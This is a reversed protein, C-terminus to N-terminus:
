AIVWFATNFVKFIRAVLILSHYCRELVCFWGLCLFLM